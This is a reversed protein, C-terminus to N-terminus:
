AMAVRWQNGAPRWGGASRQNEIVPQRRWAKRWGGYRSEITEAIVGCAKAVYEGNSNEVIVTYAM